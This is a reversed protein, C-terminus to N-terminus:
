KHYAAMHKGYKKNVNFAKENFFKKIKELYINTNVYYNLLLTRM